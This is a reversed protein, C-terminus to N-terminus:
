VDSKKKRHNKGNGNYEIRLTIFCRLLIIFFWHISLKWVNAFLRSLISYLTGTYPSPTQTTEEIFWMDGMRGMEWSVLAVSAEWHLPPLTNDFNYIWFMMTLISSPPELNPVHRIDLQPQRQRVSTGSHQSVPCQAWQANYICTYDHRWDGDGAEQQQCWSLYSSM